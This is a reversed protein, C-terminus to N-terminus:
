HDDHEPTRRMQFPVSDVISLILSSFRYDNAAANRRIQRVAPQDYYEL